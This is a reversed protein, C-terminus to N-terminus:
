SKPITKLGSKIMRHKRVSPLAAVQAIAEDTDKREQREIKDQDAWYLRGYNLFIEDNPKITRTAVITPPSAANINANNKFPKDKARCMNAFRGYNSTPSEADISWKKNLQLIYKNNSDISDSPVKDGRYDCIIDGKRFFRNAFLGLGANKIQSTKIYLGLQSLLHDKCLYGQNTKENCNPYSCNITKSNIQSM